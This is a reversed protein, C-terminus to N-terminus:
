PGPRPSWPASADCSCLTWGSWCGGGRHRDRRTDRPDQFLCCAEMDIWPSEEVCAHIRAMRSPAQAVDFAGAHRTSTTRAPAGRCRWRNWSGMSIKVFSISFMWRSRRRVRDNRADVGNSVGMSVKTSQDISRGLLDWPVGEPAITGYPGM